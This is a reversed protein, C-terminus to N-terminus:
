FVIKGQHKQFLINSLNKSRWQVLPGTVMPFILTNNAWFYLGNTYHIGTSHLTNLTPFEWLDAPGLGVVKFSSRSIKASKEEIQHKQNSIWSM